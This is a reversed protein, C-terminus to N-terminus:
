ATFGIPTRRRQEGDAFFAKRERDRVCTVVKLFKYHVPSTMEPAHPIYESTAATLNVPYM